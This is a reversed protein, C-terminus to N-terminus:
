HDPKLRVELVSDVTFFGPLLQRAVASDSMGIRLVLTDIRPWPVGKLLSDHLLLNLTERSEVHILWHVRGRWGSKSPVDWVWKSRPLNVPDIPKFDRGADLVAYPTKKLDLSKVMSNPIRVWQSVRNVSTPVKDRSWDIILPGLLAMFILLLPLYLISYSHSRSASAEEAGSFRNLVSVRDTLRDRIQLFLRVLMLASYRVALVPFLFNLMITSAFVRDNVENLFPSTLLCCALYALLFVPFVLATHDRRHFLLGISFLLAILAIQSPTVSNPYPLLSDQPHVSLSRKLIRTYNRLFPWPDDVISKVIELKARKMRAMDSERNGDIERIPYHKYFDSWTPSDHFVQSLMVVSNSMKPIPKRFLVRQVEPLLLGAAFPLLCILISLIISRFRNRFTWGGFLVLLPPLLVVGQRIELALSCVLVGMLYAKLSRTHFGHVLLAIGVVGFMGGSMETMFTGQFLCFYDCLLWTSFVAVPRGLHRALICGQYWFCLILLFTSAYLFHIWGAGSIWYVVSAFLHALPRYVAVKGMMGYRLFSLMSSLYNNSDSLPILGGLTFYGSYVSHAEPTMSYLKENLAPILFSAIGFLLLLPFAQSFAELFLGVSPNRFTRVHTSFSGALALSFFFLCLKLGVDRTFVHPLCALVACLSVFSVATLAWRFGVKSKFADKM